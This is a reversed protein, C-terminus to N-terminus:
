KTSLIKNEILSLIRDIPEAKAFGSNTSLRIGSGRKSVTSDVYPVFETVIGAVYSNMTGIVIGNGYDSPSYSTHIIVPGGSNGGYVPLQLKLRGDPYFGSVIGSVISVKTKDKEDLESPFGMTLIPIGLDMDRDLWFKNTTFAPLGKEGIDHKVASYFMFRNKNPGDIPYGIHLVAIDFSDSTFLHNKIAVEDLTISLKNGKENPRGNQYYVYSLAKGKSNKLVHKATVIFVNGSHGVMTGTGTSVGDLTINGTYQIIQNSTPQSWGVSFLLLVLVSVFFVKM